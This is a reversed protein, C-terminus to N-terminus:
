EISALGVRGSGQRIKRSRLRSAGPKPQAMVRVSYSSEELALDRILWEFKGPLWLKGFVRPADGMLPRGKRDKRPLGSDDLLPLARHSLGVSLELSGGKTEVIRINPNGKKTADGRAYLTGQRKLRWRRRLFASRSSSEKGIGFGSRKRISPM